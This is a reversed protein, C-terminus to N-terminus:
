YYGVYFCYKCIVECLVPTRALNDTLSTAAAILRGYSWVFARELYASLIPTAKWIWFSKSLRSPYYYM